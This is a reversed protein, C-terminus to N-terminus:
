FPVAQVTPEVSMDYMFTATRVAVKMPVIRGRTYSGPSNGNVRYKTTRERTVGEIFVAYASANFVFCRPGSSVVLVCDRAIALDHGSPKRTNWFDSTQEYEVYFSDYKVSARDNKFEILKGTLPYGLCKELEQTHGSTELVLYDGCVGPGQQVKELDVGFRHSFHAAQAREVVESVTFHRQM